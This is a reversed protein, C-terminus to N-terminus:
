ARAAGKSGKSGKSGKDAMSQLLGNRSSGIAIETMAFVGDALLLFLVLFIELFASNRTVIVVFDYSYHWTIADKDL